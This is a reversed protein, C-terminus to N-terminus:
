CFHQVPFQKDITFLEALPQKQHTFLRQPLPYIRKKAKTFVGDQIVAFVPTTIKNSKVPSAAPACVTGSRTVTLAAPVSVTELALMRSKESGSEASRSVRTALVACVTNETRV